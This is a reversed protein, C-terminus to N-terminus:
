QNIGLVKWVLKNKILFFLIIQSIGILSFVNTIVFDRETSEGNMVILQPFFGHFHPFLWFLIGIGLLGFKFIIHYTKNSQMPM